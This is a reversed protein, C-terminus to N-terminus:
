NETQGSEGKTNCDCPASIVGGPLFSYSRSAKSRTLAIAEISGDSIIPPSSIIPASRGSANADCREINSPSSAFSSSQPFSSQM